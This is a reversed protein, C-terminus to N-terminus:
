LSFGCVNSCGCRCVCKPHVMAPPPRPLAVCTAPTLLTCFKYSGLLASKAENGISKSSNWKIIDKETTGQIPKHLWRLFVDVSNAFGKNKWPKQPTRRPIRRPRGHGLCSWSKIIDKGAEGSHQNQKM